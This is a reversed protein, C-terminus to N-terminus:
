PARACRGGVDARLGTSRVLQNRSHGMVWNSSYGGGRISASSGFATLLPDTAPGTAYNAFHDLVWEYVNGILDAHGWLGNGSPKSGVNAVATAEGNAM